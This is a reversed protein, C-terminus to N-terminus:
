RDLQNTLVAFGEYFKGYVNTQLCTLSSAPVTSDVGVVHEKIWEQVDLTDEPSIVNSKRKRPDDIRNTAADVAIRTVNPPGWELTPFGYMLQSRNSGDEAKKDPAFQFWM